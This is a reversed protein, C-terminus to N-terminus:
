ATPSIPVLPALGSDSFDQRLTEREAPYFEGPVSVGHGTKEDILMVTRAHPMLAALDLLHQDVTGMLRLLQIRKEESSTLGDSYSGFSQYFAVKGVHDAHYSDFLVRLDVQQANSRDITVMAEIRRAGNRRSAEAFEELSGVLQVERDAPPDLRDALARFFGRRRPFRELGNNM